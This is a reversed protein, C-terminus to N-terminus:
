TLEVVPAQLTLLYLRWSHFSDQLKKFITATLYFSVIFLAYYVHDTSLLM